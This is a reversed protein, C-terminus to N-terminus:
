QKLVLFEEYISGSKVMFGTNSTGNKVNFIHRKGTQSCIVSASAGGKTTVKVNTSHDAGENVSTTLKVTGNGTGSTKDATIWSEM